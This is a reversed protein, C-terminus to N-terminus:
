LDRLGHENYDSHSLDLLSEPLVSPLPSALTDAESGVLCTTDLLADDGSFHVVQDTEQLECTAPSNPTIQTRARKKKVEPTWEHDGETSSDEDVFSSDYSDADSHEDSDDDEQSSTEYMIPETGAEASLEMDIREAAKKFM